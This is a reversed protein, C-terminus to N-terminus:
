GGIKALANLITRIFEVTGGVGGLLATISVAIGVIIQWKKLGKVKGNPAKVKELDKINDEAVALRERVRNAKKNESHMIEFKAQLKIQAEHIEKVTAKMDSMETMLRTSTEAFTDIGDNFAEVMTKIKDDTDDCVKSCETKLVFKKDGM